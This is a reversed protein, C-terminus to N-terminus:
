APTAAGARPPCLRNTLLTTALTVGVSYFWQPPNSPARHTPVKARTDNVQQASPPELFQCSEPCHSSVGFMQEIFSDSFEELIFWMLNPLRGALHYLIRAAQRPLLLVLLVMFLGGYLTLLVAFSPLTKLLLAGLFRYVELAAAAAPSRLYTDALVKSVAALHRHKPPVSLAVVGAGGRAKKTRSRTQPKEMVVLPLEPVAPEVPIAAFTAKGKPKGANQSKILQEANVGCAGLAGELVSLAELAKLTARMVAAEHSKKGAILLTAADWSTEVGEQLTQGGDISARLGWGLLFDAEGTLRAVDVPSLSAM